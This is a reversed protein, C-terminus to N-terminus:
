SGLLSIKDHNNQMLARCLQMCSLIL